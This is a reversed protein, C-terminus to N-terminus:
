TIRCGRKRPENDRDHRSAGAELMDVRQRERRRDEILEDITAASGELRARLFAIQEDQRAITAQMADNAQSPISGDLRARLGEITTNLDDIASSAVADQVAHIAAPPTLTFM